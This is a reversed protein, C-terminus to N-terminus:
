LLFVANKYFCMVDECYKELINIESEEEYKYEYFKNM